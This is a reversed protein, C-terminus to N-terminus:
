MNDDDLDFNAPTEGNWVERVEEGVPNVNKLHDWCRRRGVIFAEVGDVDFAPNTALRDKAEENIFDGAPDLPSVLQEVREMVRARRQEAEVTSEGIRSAVTSM